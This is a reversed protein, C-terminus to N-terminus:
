NKLQRQTLQSIEDEHKRIIDTIRNCLGKIEELKRNIEENNYGGDANHQNSSKEVLWSGLFFHLLRKQLHFMYSYTTSYTWAVVHRRGCFQYCDEFINKKLRQMFGLNTTGGRVAKKRCCQFCVDFKLIMQAFKMLRQLEVEEEDIAPSKVLTVIVNGIVLLFVLFLVNSFVPYYVSQEIFTDDYGLDGFMWTVSKVWAQYITSFAAHDSFLLFFTYAFLFLVTLVYFIGKLFSLVFERTVPTFVSAFPVKSVTNGIRGWMMLISM